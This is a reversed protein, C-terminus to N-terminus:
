ESRLAEIPDLQTARMAPYIGFVLGSLVSFGLALVLLALGLPLVPALSLAIALGAAAHGSPFSFRDPPHVLSEIGVPLHPRPRSLSRKLLQVLLHSFTLSFAATAAAGRLPPVLGLSLGLVFAIAVAPDALRTLARVFFDLRARRRLVFAHFLRKDFESLRMIWTSMDVNM